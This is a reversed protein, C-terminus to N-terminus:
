RNSTDITFVITTIYMKSEIDFDPEDSEWIVMEIGTGAVTTGELALIADKANQLLTEVKDPTDDIIAVEVQYTYGAIGTKVYNPVGSEKHVCYPTLIEEDGMSMFTNPIVAALTQQIAESIM